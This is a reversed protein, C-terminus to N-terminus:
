CMKVDGCSSTIKRKGTRKHPSNRPWRHIGRVFALSVSSQYKRQYAGSNVTSFVITLSTIQSAMASIMVDSYHRKEIITRHPKCIRLRLWWRFVCPVRGAHLTVTSFAESIQLVCLTVGMYIILQCGVLLSKIWDHIKCRRLLMQFVNM